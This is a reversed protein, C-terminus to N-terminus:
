QRGAAAQQEVVSRLAGVDKESLRLSLAVDSGKPEVKLTDLLTPPLSLFALMPKQENIKALITKAAAKAAGAEKMFLDIDVNVGKGLDIAARYDKLGNIGQASMMQRINADALGFVVLTGDSGVKDKLSALTKSTPGADAALRRLAGNIQKDPVVAVRNKDVVIVHVKGSTAAPQNDLGLKSGDVEFVDHGNKKSATYFPEAAKKAKKKGKKANQREAEAQVEGLMCKVKTPNGLDNGSLVMVGSGFGEAGGGVAFRGFDQESVGCRKMAALLRKGDESDNMTKQIDKWFPSKRVKAFDLGLVNNAGDPMLGVVELWAGNPDAARAQAAPEPAKVEEKKPAVEKNAAPAEKKEKKKCGGSGLGLSLLAIAPLMLLGRSSMLSTIPM